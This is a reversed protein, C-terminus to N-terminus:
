SKLKDANKQIKRIAEAIQDMERTSGLFLTQGFWLSEETTLKDNQPCHIRETWEDMTKEGYLKLYHRNKALGTVYAERNLKGYGEWTSIGEAKLAQIFRVRSMGAFHAKNYRCMFLHYSVNTVGEYKKAPTIGPIENLLGSLYEINRSRRRDQIQQRVLQELLIGAQFETIRGNTGRTNEGPNFSTSRPAQGQNHFSYCKKIFEEDNSSVAGGEGCNLNKSSQFSFAGGIGYSGVKKGRWESGPAQCADEIVPLNHKQAIAMIRDMNAPMGGMHVPMLVRTAPTIAQEMKQSDIQFTEIDTDVLIPLAYNLTVVNYTAVFTYVPIIVEDGPGVGITGMMTYLATTGNATALSAKMGMMKAYAEEFKATVIGDLRGWRNSNLVDLLAQEEAGDYVPWGPFEGPHAKAGGLLAPTDNDGKLIPTFNGVSGL